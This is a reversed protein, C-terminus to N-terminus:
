TAGAQLTGSSITTAGSYSNTGSLTFTGTGVKTLSGAGSIEGSFTLDDSRNFTLAANNVINGVISGATGGSGIQLTGTSITRSGSYTNAGTLTLTGAGTKTLPGIGTITEGLTAENGNTDFTGGGANLTVGRNSTFGALYQLTGGGFSLGGSAAGLNADAGVALPGASITTGGSYTNNATLTTTGAGM